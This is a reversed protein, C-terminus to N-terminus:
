IEFRTLRVMIITGAALMTGGVACLIMGNPNTFLPVLYAPTTVFVLAAVVFPLAVLISASMRAEASVARIKQRMQRRRRLIDSLNALTEALNGGTQRQVSLSIVFFGFEPTDLRRATDWLAEELTRGLKLGQEIRRFEGGVPEALEQGVTIIAQSITLGSRLARVVLDLADAFLGNFRAIRRKGLNGVLWHPLALGTALAVLSAPIAGLRFALLALAFGALAAAAMWLLYHGITITRGTRELRVRLMEERPLWRAAIRDLGPTASEVAISRTSGGQRAAREAAVRRVRLLRRQFRRDRGRAAILGLALLLLAFVAAGILLPLTWDASPVAM